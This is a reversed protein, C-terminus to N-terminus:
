KKKLATKKQVPARGASTKTSSTKAAQKGAATSAAPQTKASSVAAPTAPQASTTSKAPKNAAATLDMNFKTVKKELDSLEDAQYGNASVKKELENLASLQTKFNQVEDATLWGKNLGMELQEAYTSLREKYKFAKKNSQRIGMVGSQEVVQGSSSSSSSSSFSSSSSASSSDQASAFDELIAFSALLASIILLSKGTFSM